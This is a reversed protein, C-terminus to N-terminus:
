VPVYFKGIRTELALVSIDEGHGVRAISAVRDTVAVIGGIAEAVARAGAAPVEGIAERVLLHPERILAATILGRM